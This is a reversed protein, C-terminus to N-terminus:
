PKLGRWALQSRDAVFSEIWRSITGGIAFDTNICAGLVSHDVADFSASIDLALLATCKSDGAALQINGVVKLLATETSHGPRYASKYM